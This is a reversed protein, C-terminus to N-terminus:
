QYGRMWGVISASSNSVLNWANKSSLAPSINIKEGTATEQWDNCERLFRRWPFSESRVRSGLVVISEVQAALPPLRRLKMHIKHPKLWPTGGYGRADSYTGFM